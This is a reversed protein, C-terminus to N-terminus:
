NTFRAFRMSGNWGAGGTALNGLTIPESSAQVEQMATLQAGTYSDRQLGDVYLRLSSDLYRWCFITFALDLRCGAKCSVVAELTKTSGPTGPHRADGRRKGVVDLRVNVQGVHPLKASM